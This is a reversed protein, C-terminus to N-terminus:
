KANSYKKSMELLSAGQKVQRKVNNINPQSNKSYKINQTSNTFGRRNSQQQHVNSQSMIFSDLANIGGGFDQSEYM